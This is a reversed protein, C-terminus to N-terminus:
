AELVTVSGGAGEIKSQAVKSIRHVQVSLSKTLEGNALVKIVEASNRVIGREKLLEPTVTTGADFGDLQELSVLDVRVRDPNSFGRKPLRRVLPMQGGEFAGKYGKGRGSRAQSGKHGFGSTKGHGSAHGRGVRKRKQLRGPDKGLEHIKMITKGDQGSKSRREM